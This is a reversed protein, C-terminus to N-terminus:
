VTWLKDLKYFERGEKTFVHVIVSGYDLYVNDGSVPAPLTLEVEKIKDTIELAMTSFVSFPLMSILLIAAILMALIKKTKM